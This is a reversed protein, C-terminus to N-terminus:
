TSPRSSIALSFKVDRATLREEKGSVAQADAQAQTQTNCTMAELNRTQVGVIYSKPAREETGNTASKCRMSFRPHTLRSQKSFFNCGELSQILIMDADHWGSDM